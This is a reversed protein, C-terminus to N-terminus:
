AIRPTVFFTITITCGNAEAGCRGGGCVHGMGGGGWRDEDGGGVGKIACM